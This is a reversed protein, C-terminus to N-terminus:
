HCDVVRYASSTIEFCVGSIINLKVDFQNGGGGNTNNFIVNGVTQGAPVTVSCWGQADPTVVTGPWGGFTDGVPSGGWAYIGFATWSSGVYKWRITIEKAPNAVREFTGVTSNVEYSGSETPDSLFNFQKGGGNNNLILNVPRNKPVVVSYWGDADPQVRRGPWGGFVEADGWAYIAFEDWDGEVQKWQIMVDKPEPPEVPEIYPIVMLPAMSSYLPEAANGNEKYTVKVRIEVLQNEELDEVGLLGIVWNRLQRTFIDVFLNETTTIIVPNAFLNDALDMEITYELDTVTVPLGSEFTFRPQTWNIRMLFPDEAAEDVPLLLVSGQGINLMPARESIDGGASREYDDECASFVLALCLLGFLYKINKM